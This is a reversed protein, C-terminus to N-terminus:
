ILVRQWFRSGSKFPCQRIGADSETLGVEELVMSGLM